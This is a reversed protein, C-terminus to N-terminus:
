LTITIKNIDDTHDVKFIYTGRGSGMVPIVSNCGSSVNMTISTGSTICLTSGVLVNTITIPNGMIMNNCHKTNINNNELTTAVVDVVVDKSDVMVSTKSIESTNNDM